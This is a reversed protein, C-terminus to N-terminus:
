GELSGWVPGCNRDQCETCINCHTTATRMFCFKQECLLHTLTFGWFWHRPIKFKLPGDAQAVTHKQSHDWKDNGTSSLPGIPAWQPLHHLGQVWFYHPHFHPRQVCRLYILLSGSSSSDYLANFLQCLDGEFWAQSIGKLGLSMQGGRMTVSPIGAEVLM